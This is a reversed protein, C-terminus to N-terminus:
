RDKPAGADVPLSLARRLGQHYHIM